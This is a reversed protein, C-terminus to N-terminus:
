FVYYRPIVNVIKLNIYGCKFLRSTKQVGKKRFNVIKSKVPNVGIVCKNTWNAMEDLMVQLSEESSALLLIDDAYLLLSLNGDSTVIGSNLEKIDTALDNISLSFLTPSLHDGQRVGYLTKFLRLM